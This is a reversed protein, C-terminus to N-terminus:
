ERERGDREGEWRERGGEGGRREEEGREKGGKPSDRLSTLSSVISSRFLTSSTLEYTTSFMFRINWRCLFCVKCTPLSPLSSPLSLFPPSPSPLSFSILSLSFFPSLFLSLSTHTPPLFLLGHQDNTYGRSM